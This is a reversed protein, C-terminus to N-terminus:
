RAALQYNQHNDSNPVTCMWVQLLMGFVLIRGAPTQAELNNKDVLEVQHFVDKKQQEPWYTLVPNSIM